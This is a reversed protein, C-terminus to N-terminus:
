GYLGGQNILWSSLLPRFSREQEMTTRKCNKIHSSNKVKQRKLAKGWKKAEKYCEKEICYSPVKLRAIYKDSSYYISFEKEFYSWDIQDALLVLEHNMDIFDELLPRFLDRQGKEPSKGIM